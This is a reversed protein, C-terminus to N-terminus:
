RQEIHVDLVDWNLGVTAEHKQVATYLIDRAEEKTLEIGLYKARDLVDGVTWGIYEVDRFKENIMHKALDVQDKIFGMEDLYNVVNETILNNM